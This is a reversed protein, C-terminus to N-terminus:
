FRFRQGLRYYSEVWPGERISQNRRQGLLTLAQAPLSPLEGDVTLIVM